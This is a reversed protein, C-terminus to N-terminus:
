SLMVSLSLMSTVQELEGGWGVRGAELRAKDL